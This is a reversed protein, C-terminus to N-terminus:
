ELLKEPMMNLEKIKIYRIENDEGTIQINDVYLTLLAILKNEISYKGFLCKDFKYQIFSISKLYYTIEDNWM